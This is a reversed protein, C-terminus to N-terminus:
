QQAAEEQILLERHAFEASERELHQRCVTLTSSAVGQGQISISYFLFKIEEFPIYHLQLAQWFIIIRTSKRM